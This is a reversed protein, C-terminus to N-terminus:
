EAGPDIQSDNKFAADIFNVGDYPTEAIIEARVVRKWDAPMPVPMYGDQSGVDFDLNLVGNVITVGEPPTDEAFTTATVATSSFDNYYYIKATGMDGEPRIAIQYCTPRKKKNMGDGPFWDTLLRQRISGVYLVTGNAPAGSFAPSVTLAGAGAVTILRAEGTTPNYLMQGVVATNTVNIVTTTSGVGVTVVGDGGGDNASVGVRWLYGNADAIMLHQVDTYTTNACGATFAQRYTYMSWQQTDLSYVFANKCTTQGALPFFFYVERRKPEYVVFRQTTASTSALAAMTLDVPKSIKKPQMADVIWAGNKGWGVMLGGDVKILCRANFCGQSGPVDLVMAAAPDTSYVLRRISHQGVLYLDNYYTMMASPTDGTDLTIKRSYNVTDWSEPYLARSWDLLGTSIQWMWLRQRHEGIIEFNPPPLHQFEGDRDAAVGLILDDDSIDITTSSTANTVTAVRYYTEAGAATMEVIIKDVNADSNTTYGASIKDGATVTVLDAVSPDSLRNRTSDYYRYRVLHDGETVVGGSGTTSATAATVPAAIGVTRITTGSDSVRTEVGNAYYMRGNMSAFTPWNTTTLGTTLSAVAGSSQTVSLVAGAATALLVYNGLEAATRVVAASLNVSGGFGLRRRAQGKIYFSCNDIEGWGSGVDSEDDQYGNWSM